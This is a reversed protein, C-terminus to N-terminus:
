LEPENKIEVEVTFFRYDSYKVTLRSRSYKPIMFGKYAEELVTRSPFRLGNKEIEYDHVATFLPKLERREASEAATRFGSLYEGEFEIRLVSGDERDVWIRGTESEEPPIGNQRIGLVYIKRDFIKDEKIFLYNNKVQAERGVLMVAGFFSRLSFLRKTKLPADVIKMEQGNEELLIRKEAYHDPKHILQYDYVLRLLEDKLYFRTTRRGRFPGSNFIDERIEERCVFDLAAGRLRDCYRACLELIQVPNKETNQCFGNWPQLCVGAGILLVIRGFLLLFYRSVRKM